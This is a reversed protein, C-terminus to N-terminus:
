LYSECLVGVTSGILAACVIFWSGSFFNKFLIACVFSIIWPLIEKKGRWSGILLVIFLATFAFDMGFFTPNKIYTSAFIGLVTFIIWIVYASLGCGLLYQFLFKETHKPDRAKIVTLAWNEDMLTFLALFLGKKPVQSFLARISVGMLFYRVCITATTLLLALMSFPPHGIIDLSVVQATGAYVIASMLTAQHVDLGHSFSLAGFVFGFLGGALSIILSEKIGVMFGNSADIYYSSFQKM